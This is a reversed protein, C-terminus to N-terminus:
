HNCTQQCALHAHTSYLQKGSASGAKQAPVQVMSVTGPDVVVVLQSGFGSIMLNNCETALKTCQVRLNGVGDFSGIDVLRPAGVWPPLSSGQPM